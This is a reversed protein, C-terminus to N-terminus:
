PLSSDRNEQLRRNRKKDAGEPRKVIRGSAHNVITIDWESIAHQIISALLNLRKVVTTAAYGAGTTRERFDRVDAASFKSLRVSSLAPDRLIAPIHGVRDAKRDAMCEDRYREVLTGITMKDLPRTDTFQGLEAKATTESLWRRAQAASSFTEQGRRGDVMKRTM